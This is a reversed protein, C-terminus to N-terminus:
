FVYAVHPMSEIGWYDITHLNKAENMMVIM